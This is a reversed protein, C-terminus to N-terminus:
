MMVPKYRGIKSIQCYEGLCYKVIFIEYVKGDMVNLGLDNPICNSYPLYRLLIYEM